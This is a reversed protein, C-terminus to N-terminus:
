FKAIYIKTESFVCSSNSWSRGFYIYKNKIKAQIRLLRCLGIGFNSVHWCICYDGWDVMKSEANWNGPTLESGFVNLILLFLYNQRKNWSFVWFDDSPFERSEQDDFTCMHTGMDKEEKRNDFTLRERQAIISIGDARVKKSFKYCDSQRKQELILVKQRHSM